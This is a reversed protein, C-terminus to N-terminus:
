NFIDMLGAEVDEITGSSTNQKNEEPKTTNTTTQEVPQETVNPQIETTNNTVSNSFQTLDIGLKNKIDNIEDSIPAANNVNQEMTPEQILKSQSQQTIPEYTQVVTQQAQSKASTEAPTCHQDQVPVSQQLTESKRPRGPGRKNEHLTNKPKSFANYSLVDDLDKMGYNQIFIRILRKVSNSKNRQNSLWENIDADNNNIRVVLQKAEKKEEM